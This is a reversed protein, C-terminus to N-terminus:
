VADLDEVKLVTIAGQAELGQAMELPTDADMHEDPIQALALKEAFMDVVDDATIIKEEPFILHFRLRPLSNTRIYTKIVELANQHEKATAYEDDGEEFDDPDLAVQEALNIVLEFAERMPSLLRHTPRFADEALASAIAGTRKSTKSEAVSLGGYVIVKGHTDWM